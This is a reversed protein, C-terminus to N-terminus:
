RTRKFSFQLMLEAEGNSGLECRCRSYRTVESIAQNLNISSLTRRIAQNKSFAALSYRFRLLRRSLISVSQKIIEIHNTTLNSIRAPTPHLNLNLNFDPIQHRRPIKVGFKRRLAIKGGQEETMRAVGWLGGDWRQGAGKWLHEEGVVVM